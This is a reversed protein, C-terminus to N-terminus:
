LYPFSFHEGKLNTLWTHFSFYKQPIALLYQVVLYMQSSPVMSKNLTCNLKTSNTVVNELSLLPIYAQVKKYYMVHM